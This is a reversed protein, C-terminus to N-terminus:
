KENIVVGVKYFYYDEKKEPGKLSTIKLGSKEELEKISKKCYEISKGTAEIWLINNEITINQFDKLCQITELSNKINEKSNGNLYLGQIKSSFLEEEKKLGKLMSINSILIGVSFLLLISILIFIKRFIKEKRKLNKQLYSYPIFNLKSM